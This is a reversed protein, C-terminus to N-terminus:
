HGLHDISHDIEELRARFRHHWSQPLTKVHLSRELTERDPSKASYITNVERITLTPDEQELLEFEDGAGVEGEEIVLFYFGSRGSRLFQGIIRESQFKAAL